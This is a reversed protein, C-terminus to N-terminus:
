QKQNLKSKKRLVWKLSLKRTIAFSTYIVSPPSLNLCIIMPYLVRQEMLQAIAGPWALNVM